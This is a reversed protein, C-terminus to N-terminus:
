KARERRLEDDFAVSAVTCADGQTQESLIINAAAYDGQAAQQADSRTKEADNARFDALVQLATVANNQVSITADQQRKAGQCQTLEKNLTDIMPQYHRDALWAGAGVIAALALLIVIIQAILQRSM